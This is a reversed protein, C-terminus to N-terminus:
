KSKRRISAALEQVAHGPKVKLQADLEEVLRDYVLLADDDMGMEHYLKM